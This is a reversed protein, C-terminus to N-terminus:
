QRRAASLISGCRTRFDKYLDPYLEPQLIQDLVSLKSEEKTQVVGSRGTGRRRSQGSHEDFGDSLGLMRSKLRARHHNEDTDPGDQFREASLVGKGSALQTLAPIDVTLDASRRSLFVSALAAYTFWARRSRPITRAFRRKSLRCRPMRQRPKMLGRHKRVLGHSDLWLNNKKRVARHRRMVQEALEMKNKGSKVNPKCDKSTTRASFARWPSLKKSRPSGTELLTSRSRRGSQV